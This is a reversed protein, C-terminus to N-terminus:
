VEEKRQFIGILKSIDKVFAPLIKESPMNCPRFICQIKKKNYDRKKDLFYLEAITNEVDKNWNYHNDDLLIQYKIEIQPYKKKIKNIGRETCLITKLEIKVNPSSVDGIIEPIIESKDWLYTRKDNKEKKDEIYFVLMDKTSKGSLVNDTIFVISELEKGLYYKKNGKKTYGDKIQIGDFAKQLAGRTGDNYSEFLCNLTAGEGSSEKAVIMKNKRSDEQLDDFFKKTYKSSNLVFDTYYYELVLTCFKEFRDNNFECVQIHWLLKYLAINNTTEKGFNSNDIKRGFYEKTNSFGINKIINLIQEIKEVLCKSEWEKSIITKKSISELEELRKEIQITNSLIYAKKEIPDYLCFGNCIDERELQNGDLSVINELDVSIEDILYENRNMPKKKIEIKKIETNFVYDNKQLKLYLGEMNKFPCFPRYLMILSNHCIFLTETNIKEYDYYKRIFDIYKKIAEELMGKKISDDFYIKFLINQYYENNDKAILMMRDLYDNGEANEKIFDSYFNIVFDLTLIDIPKRQAITCTGLDFYNNKMEKLFKDYCTAGSVENGNIDMIEQDMFTFPNVIKSFSNQDQNVWFCRGLFINYNKTKFIFSLTNRRSEATAELILTKLDVLSENNVNEYEYYYATIDDKSGEFGFKGHYQNEYRNRDQFYERNTNRILILNGKKVIITGNLISNNANEFLVNGGDCLMEILKINYTTAISKMKRIIQNDSKEEKDLHNFLELSYILKLYHEEDVKFDNAIDELLLHIPFIKDNNNDVLSFLWKIENIENFTKNYFNMFKFDNNPDYRKRRIKLNYLFSIFIFEKDIYFEVDYDSILPQMYDIFNLLNANYEENDIAIKCGSKNKLCLQWFLEAFNKVFKQREKISFNDKISIEWLKNFNEISSEFDSRMMLVELKRIKEKLSEM